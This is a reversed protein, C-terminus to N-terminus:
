GRLTALRALDGETWTVPTSGGFDAIRRNSNGGAVFFDVGIAVSVTKREAGSGSGSRRAAVFIAAMSFRFVPRPLPSTSGSEDSSSFRLRCALRGDPDDADCRFDGGGGARRWDPWM